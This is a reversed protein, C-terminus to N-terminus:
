MVIGENGPDERSPLLLSGSILTPLSYIKVWADWVSACNLSSDGSLKVLTYVLVTLVPHLCGPWYLLRGTKEAWLNGWAYRANCIYWWESHIETFAINEKNNKLLKLEGCKGQKKRWTGKKNPACDGRFFISNNIWFITDFSNHYINLKTDIPILATWICGPYCLYVEVQWISCDFVKYSAHFRDFEM